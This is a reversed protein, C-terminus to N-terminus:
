LIKEWIDSSSIKSFGFNELFSHFVEGGKLSSKLWIKKINNKEAIKVLENLFLIGYHKRRYKEGIFIQKLEIDNKNIFYILFGIKEKLKWDGKELYYFETINFDDYFELEEKGNIVIYKM